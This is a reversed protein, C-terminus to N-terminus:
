KGNGGKSMGKSLVPGSIGGIGGSGGGADGGQGGEGGNGGLAEDGVGPYPEAVEQSQLTLNNKSLTTGEVGGTGEAGGQGDDGPEGNLGGNASGGPGVLAM